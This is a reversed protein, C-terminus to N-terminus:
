AYPSPRFRRPLPSEFLQSFKESDWASVIPSDSIVAQSFGYKEGPTVFAIPAQKYLLAVSHGDSSWLFGFDQESTDMIVAHKSVLGEHLSPLGGNCRTSRWAKESLPQYQIYALADRELKQTGPQTLYLVGSQEDEDLIAYRGSV